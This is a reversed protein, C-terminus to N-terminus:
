FDAMYCSDFFYNCDFSKICNEKVVSTKFIMTM